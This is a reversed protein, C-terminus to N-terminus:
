LANDQCCVPSIWIGSYVAEKESIDPSQRLEASTDLTAVYTRLRSMVWRNVFRGGAAKRTSKSEVKM